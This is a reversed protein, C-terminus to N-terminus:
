TRILISRLFCIIHTLSSSDDIAVLVIAHKLVRIIKDSEQGVPSSVFGAKQLADYVVADGKTQSSGDIYSNTALYENLLQQGDASACDGFGM